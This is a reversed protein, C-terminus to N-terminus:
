REVAADELVARQRRIRRLARACRHWNAVAEDATRGAVKLRVVPEGEYPAANWRGGKPLHQYLTLLSSDTELEWPFTGQVKERLEPGNLGRRSLPWDVYWPLMPIVGHAELSYGFLLGPWRPSCVVDIVGELSDRAYEQFIERYLCAGASLGIRLVFETPIEHWAEPLEALLQGASRYEPFSVADMIAQRAAEDPRSGADAEFARVLIEAIPERERQPPDFLYAVIQLWEEAEQGDADPGRDRPAVALAWTKGDRTSGLWYDWPSLSSDRSRSDLPDVVYGWDDITGVVTSFEQHVEDAYRIKM